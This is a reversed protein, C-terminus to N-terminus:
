LWCLINFMVIVCVDDSSLVCRVLDTIDEDVLGVGFCKKLVRSLFPGFVPLGECLARESILGLNVAWLFMGVSVKKRVLRERGDSDVTDEYWIVTGLKGEV